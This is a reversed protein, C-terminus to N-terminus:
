TCISPIYICIDALHLTETILARVPVATCLCCWNHCHCRCVVSLNHNCLSMPMYALHALFCCNQSFSNINLLHFCLDRSKIEVESIGKRNRQLLCHRSFGGGLYSRRKKEEKRVFYAICKITTLQKRSLAPGCQM